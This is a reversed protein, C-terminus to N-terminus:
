DLIPLFLFSEALGFTISSISAVVYDILFIAISAVVLTSNVAKGVGEAGGEAHMGKYCCVIGIVIGFLFSKIMGNFLAWATTLKRLNVLYYSVNVDLVLSSMIAGGVISVLLGFITLLFIMITVALFRPVVLAQLPDAGLCRVADVQETVKMTGLEAAIYAGIRGTIMVAVLVPGVERLLGSTTIGGLYVEAQFLSLAHHFQLAVIGGVFFGAVLVIPVSLVGVHYLQLMFERIEFPARPVRIVVQVGFVIMAGLEDLFDLITGVIWVKRWRIALETAVREVKEVSSM